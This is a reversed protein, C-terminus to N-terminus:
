RRRTNPFLENYIQHEQEPTFGRLHWSIDTITGFMDMDGNSMYWTGPAWSPWDSAETAGESELFQVAKDVVTLEDAEDWEDPLMLRTTDETVAADEPIDTGGNEDPEPVQREIVIRRIMPQEQQDIVDKFLPMKREIEGQQARRLHLDITTM